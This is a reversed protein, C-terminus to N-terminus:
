QFGDIVKLQLYVFILNELNQEKAIDFLTFQSAKLDLCQIKYYSLHTPTVHFYNKHKSQHIFLLEQHLNEPSKDILSSTLRFLYSDQDGRKPKLIGCIETVCVQQGQKFYISPLNFELKNNTPYAYLNILM